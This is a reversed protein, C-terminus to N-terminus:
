SGSKRLPMAYKTDESLAFRGHALKRIRGSRLLHGFSKLGQERSIESNPDLSAARRLLQPRSLHEQGEVFTSYAAAAELIDPLETAGCQKVFDSFSETEGLGKVE